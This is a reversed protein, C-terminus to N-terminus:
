LGSYLIWVILYHFFICSERKIIKHCAFIEWIFGWSVMLWWLAFSIVKINGFNSMEAWWFVGSLFQVPSGACTPPFIQLVFIQHLIQGWFKCVLLLSIFLRTKFYALSSYVNWLLLYVLLWSPLVWPCSTVSGETESGELHPESTHFVSTNTKSDENCRPCSSAHILWENPVWEETGHSCKSPSFMMMHPHGGCWNRDELDSLTRLFPSFVAALKGGQRVWPGGQGWVEIVEGESHSQYSGSVHTNGLEQLGFLAAEEDLFVQPETGHSTRCCM